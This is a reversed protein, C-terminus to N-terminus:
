FIPRFLMKQSWLFKFACLIGKIGMYLLEYCSVSLNLQEHENIKKIGHGKMKYRFSKM